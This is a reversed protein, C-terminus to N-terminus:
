SGYSAKYAHNDLVSDCSFERPNWGGKLIFVTWGDRKEYDWDEFGVYIKGDFGYWVDAYPKMDSDFWGSITGIQVGFFDPVCNARRSQSLKDVQTYGSDLCVKGEWFKHESPRIGYVLAEEIDPVNLSHGIEKECTEYDPFHTKWETIATDLIDCLNNFFANEQGLPITIKDVPEIQPSLPCETIFGSTCTRPFLHDDYPDFPKTRAEPPQRNQNEAKLRETFSKTSLIPMERIAQQETSRVNNDKSSRDSVTVNLTVLPVQAIPPKSTPSLIQRVLKEESIDALDSKM